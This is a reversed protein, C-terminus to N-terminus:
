DSSFIVYNGFDCEQYLIHSKPDDSPFVIFKSKTEPQLVVKQKEVPITAQSWDMKIEGGLDKCITRRLLVGYSAPTDAVLITLKVRKSPYTALAVQADKVQGLLPIQKSDMSYCRGFTKTLSLGLSKAVSSPMINESAGSDIICNNLKHGNIFLSM